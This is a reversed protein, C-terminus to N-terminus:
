KHVRDVSQGGVFRDPGAEDRDQHPAGSGVM